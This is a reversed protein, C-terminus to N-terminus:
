NVMQSFDDYIKKKFSNWMMCNEFEQIVLTKKGHNELVHKILDEIFSAFIELDNDNNLKLVWKIFFSGFLEKMESPLKYESNIIFSINVSYLQARNSLGSSMLSKNMTPRIVNCNKSNKQEM